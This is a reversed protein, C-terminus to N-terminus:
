VSSAHYKVQIKTANLVRFGSNIEVQAKKGIYDETDIIRMASLLTTIGFADADGMIMDVLSLNVSTSNASDSYPFYLAATENLGNAEIVRIGYWLGARGTSFVDDNKVPVFDGGAQTLIEEYVSTSVIVYTPNAKNDKLEKRMGIIYSLVNSDSIATTDSYDTGENVLCALGSTQWGESVEKLIRSYEAEAKNYAVAAETIGFIQEEVRFANNIVVQILTDATTAGSFSGGVVQPDVIANSGLKHFFYGGAQTVVKDTYTMGPVLVSDYYLNPEVIPLYKEDVYQSNITLSM